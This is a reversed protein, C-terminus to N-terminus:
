ADVAMLILGPVSNVGTFAGWFIFILSLVPALPGIFGVITM